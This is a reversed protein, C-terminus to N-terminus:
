AFHRAALHELAEASTSFGDDPCGHVNYYWRNGFDKYRGLYAIKAGQDYINFGPSLPAPKVTLRNALKRAAQKRDHAALFAAGDDALLQYADNEAIVTQPVADISAAPTKAREADLKLRLAHNAAEGYAASAAEIQAPTATVDYRLADYARRAASSQLAAILEPAPGHQAGTDVAAPRLGENWNLECAIRAAVLWDDSSRMFLQRENGRTRTVTWGYREDREPYVTWPSWDGFAERRVKEAVIRSETDVDVAAPAPDVPAASQADPQSAPATEWAAIAWARADDITAFIPGYWFGDRHLAFRIPEGDQPFVPYGRSMDAHVDITWWRAPHAAREAALLRRVDALSISQATTM